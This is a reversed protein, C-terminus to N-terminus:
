SELERSETSTQPNEVTYIITSVISSRLVELEIEFKSQFAREEDRSKKQAIKVLEISKM